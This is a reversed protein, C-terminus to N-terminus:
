SCAGGGTTAYSVAAVCAFGSASVPFRMKLWDAKIFDPCGLDLGFSIGETCSPSGSTCNTLGYECFAPAQFIPFKYYTTSISFFAETGGGYGATGGGGGPPGICGCHYTGVTYVDYTGYEGSFSISASASLGNWQSSSSRLSPSLIHATSVYSGHSCGWSNDSITSYYYLTSANAAVDNYVSFSMGQALLVQSTAIFALVTLLTLHIARRIHHVSM